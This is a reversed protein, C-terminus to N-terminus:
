LQPTAPAPSEAARAGAESRALEMARRAVIVGLGFVILANVPHLAAIAPVGSRFQPLVTQVFTDVFLVGVLLATRGGARAPWSLILTLLPVIPLWYGFNIHLSTDGNGGLQVLGLGIFFFQLVVGAVFLIASAALLYRWTQM